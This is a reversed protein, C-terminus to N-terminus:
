GTEAGAVGPHGTVTEDGDPQEAAAGAMGPNESETGYTPTM